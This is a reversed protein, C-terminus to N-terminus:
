KVVDPAPSEGVSPLPASKGKKANSEVGGHFRSKANRTVAASIQPSAEPLKPPDPIIETDIVESRVVGPVAMHSVIKLSRSTTEVRQTPSGVIHEIIRQGVKARVGESKAEKALRIQENVIEGLSTSYAELVQQSAQERLSEIEEPKTPLESM